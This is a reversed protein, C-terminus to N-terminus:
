RHLAELVPRARAEREGALVRHHDRFLLRGIGAARGRLGHDREPDPPPHRVMEADELGHLVNDLGVDRGRPHAVRHRAHRSDGAGAASLSRMTASGLSFVTVRVWPLLLASLSPLTLGRVKSNSKTSTSGSMSAKRRMVRASSNSM